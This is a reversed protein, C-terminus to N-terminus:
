SPMPARTPLLSCIATNEVNRFAMGGSNGSPYKITLMEDPTLTGIGVPGTTPFINTQSIAPVSLLLLCILSLSRFKM